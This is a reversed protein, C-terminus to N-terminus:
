AFLKKAVFVGWTQDEEQCRTLKEQWIRLLNEYDAESFNKALVEEKKAKFAQIENALTEMYDKTDDVAMVDGFGAEELLEAQDEVTILYYDWDEAYDIFEQSYDPKDKRCYDTLVLKGGAKLSRKLRKLLSTKNEYHMLIDRSCNSTSIFLSEKPYKTWLFPLISGFYTM